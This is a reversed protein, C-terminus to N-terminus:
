RSLCVTVALSLSSSADSWQQTDCGITGKRGHCGAKRHHSGSAVDFHYFQVVIWVSGNRGNVRVTLSFALSEDLISVTLQLHLGSHTVSSLVNFSM